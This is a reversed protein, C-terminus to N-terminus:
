NRKGFRMWLYVLNAISALAAVVYTGAAWNLAEKSQVLERQNVIRKRELWYIARKSADFEVPLTVLSFLTGSAFGFIGISVATQGLIPSTQMLFIGIVLIYMALNSTIGVMPVLISRMRLWEYGKAHQVAHGCEHAIVWLGMATTGSLLAYIIWIPIMKPTFPISLGIAVVLSQILASQLLYRLSTKTNCKFFHDPIVDQFEKISPIDQDDIVLAQGKLGSFKINSM